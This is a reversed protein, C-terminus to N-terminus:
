SLLLIYLNRQCRHAGDTPLVQKLPDSASHGYMHAGRHCFIPIERDCCTILSALCAACDMLSQSHGEKRVGARLSKSASGSGSGYCEIRSVVRMVTVVISSQRQGLYIMVFKYLIWTQALARAALNTCHSSLCILLQTDRHNCLRLFLVMTSAGRRFCRM